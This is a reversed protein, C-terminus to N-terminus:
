LRYTTMEKEPVAADRNPAFTSLVRLVVAALRCTLLQM